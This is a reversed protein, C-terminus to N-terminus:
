SRTSLNIDIEEIIGGETETPIQLYEFVVELGLQGDELSVPHLKLFHHQARESPTLGLTLPLVDAARDAPIVVVATILRGYVSGLPVGESNRHERIYGNSLGTPSM